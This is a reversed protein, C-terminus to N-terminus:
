LYQRLQQAENIQRPTGREIVEDLLERAGEKDKMDLYAQALELKAAMEANYPEPKEDETLAAMDPLEAEEEDAEPELNIDSLDLELPAPEDDEGDEPLIVEEEPEESDDLALTVDDEEDAVPEPEDPILEEEEEPIVEQIVEEEGESEPGTEELMEQPEFLLEQPEEEDEEQESLPEAAVVDQPEEKEPTSVIEELVEDDEYRAPPEDGDEDEDDMMPRYADENDDDEDDIVERGTVSELFDRGSIINPNIDDEEPEEEPLTVVPVPAPASARPQPKKRRKRLMLIILVLIALTVGIAIYWIANGFFGQKKKTDEEEDDDEEDEDEDGEDNEDDTKKSAEAKKGALTQDPDIGVKEASSADTESSPTKEVTGTATQPSQADTKAPEEAKPKAPPTVAEPQTGPTKDQSESIAQAPRTLATGNKSVIELLGRLESVNKELETIRSNADEIARNMAAKEEATIGASAAGPAAKSLKLRDPMKSVPAPPEKVSASVKGEAVTGTKATARPASKQVMGALRQSYGHFNAAHLRVIRRADPRSVDGADAAPPISLVAGERLLNMNNDLFAEPNNRYLAVLMQELSIDRIGLRGAIKSLTDGRSVVYETSTHTGPPVEKDPIVSAPRVASAPLARSSIRGAHQQRSLRQMSAASSLPASRLNTWEAPDLMIVYERGKREGDAALELLVGIYPENVPQASRISVFYREGEKEVSIDLSQLLSTYDIGSRKYAEAPALSAALSSAEEPTVSTLEIEARLSQGLSSLVTLQGLTAAHSFSATVSFFLVLLAKLASTVFRYHQETPM